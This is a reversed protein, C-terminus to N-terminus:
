SFDFIDATVGTINSNFGYVTDGARTTYDAGYMAQIAMIDDIMPTQANYTQGNSAVWDAGTNSAKFYSMITYQQSDHTYLADNAYTPSGGNYTGPHNLGISHGTEHVFAAWGWAGITPPNLSNTGTNTGYTTNFWVSGYATDGYGPYYAHAYSVGTTSNSYKVNATTPDASYTFHPVILDDWLTIALTAKAQQAASLASFGAAEKYAFWTGNTPFSYTWSTGNWHYGSDLQNVIETDTWVIPM